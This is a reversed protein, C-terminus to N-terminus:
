TGLGFFSKIRGLLAVQAHAHSAAALEAKEGELEVQRTHLLHVMEDLLSPKRQLLEQFLSRDVVYCEADDRAVVTARRPEGTMLSMEGFFDGARLTALERELQHDAIRVTVEGSRVLYLSDGPDGARLIVEGAGYLEHRIGQALHLREGEDLPQLFGVGALANLRRKLELDNKRQDREPGLETLFLNHGPYPMEISARKLAYWIRKRVESDTRDDPLFDILRYRVAYEIWSEHYRWLICDPPTRQSVNPAGVLSEAVLRMVQNPPHRMHVNFYVWRRNELQDKGFIQVVNKTILGNPILILDDNKTRIVTSRWRIELVRGVQGEKEVRIWDGIAISSELQLAIGSMLNGLTDQLALGLVATLVASTTIISLLNVGSRSLLTVLAVFSAILLTLDRLIKPVGLRRGGLDFLLLGAVGIAGWALLVTSALILMAYHSEDGFSLAVSRLPWSAFYFVMCGLPIRLRKREESPLLARGLLLLATIAVALHWSVRHAAADRSLNTWLEHPQWGPPPELLSPTAVLLRM